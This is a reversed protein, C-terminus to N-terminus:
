DNEGLQRRDTTELQQVRADLRDVSARIDDVEACYANVESNPALLQVEEQLYESTNQSMAEQTRKMWSSLLGGAVGARHVLSDGVLPSLFAEWDPDLEAVIQRLQQGTGIDGEVTVEGRYLADNGTSMSRLASLTGTLTTDAPTDIVGIFYIHKDVISLVIDLEPLTVHIAIVKGDLAGLRERTEPDLRLLAEIGREATVRLPLPLDM